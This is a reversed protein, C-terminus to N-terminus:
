QFMTLICPDCLPSAKRGIWDLWPFGLKLSRVGVGSGVVPQMRLACKWWRLWFRLLFTQITKHLLMVQVIYSIATGVTSKETRDCVTWM